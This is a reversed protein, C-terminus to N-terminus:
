YYHCTPHHSRRSWRCHPIIWKAVPCGWHLAAPFLHYSFSDSEIQFSSQGSQELIRYKLHGWELAGHQLAWLIREHLEQDSSWKPFCIPASIRYWYSPLIKRKQRHLLDHIFSPLVFRMTVPLYSSWKSRAPFCVPVSSVHPFPLCMKSIIVTSFRQLYDCAFYV